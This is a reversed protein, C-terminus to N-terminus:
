ASPRGEATGTKPGTKPQEAKPEPGAGNKSKAVPEQPRGAARARSAIVTGVGIAAAVPWSIAGFVALAGLGGYYAVREPPPLAARAARVAQGADPGGLHPLSLHPRHVQLSVLPLDLTLLDDRTKEVEKGAHGNQKGATGAASGATTSKTPTRRTDAVSM